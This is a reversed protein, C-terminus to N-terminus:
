DIAHFEDAAEVLLEVVVGHFGKSLPFEFGGATLACGDVELGYDVDGEVRGRVALLEARPLLGHVGLTTM